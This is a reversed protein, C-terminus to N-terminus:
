RVKGSAMDFPVQAPGRTQEVARTELDFRNQVFTGPKNSRLVIAVTKAPGNKELHPAWPPVLDIDGSFIEFAKVQRLEATAPEQPGGDVREFHTITENGHLCGYVTYGVGHDHVSGRSGAGKILANVVFGFDADEYLVLNGGPSVWDLAASRFERDTILRRLIGVAGQWRELGDPATALYARMEDVFLDFAAFGTNNAM